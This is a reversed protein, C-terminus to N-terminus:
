LLPILAEPKPLSCATGLGDVSWLDLGALLGDQEFVFAGFLSGAEDKWQFDGLVRMRFDSPIKGNITLDISACGCICRAHVRACDLQGIYARGEESGHELMWRILGREEVTLDRNDPLRSYAHAM